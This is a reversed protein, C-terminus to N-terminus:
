HDRRSGRLQGGVTGLRKLEALEYSWSKM